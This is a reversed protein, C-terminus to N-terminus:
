LLIALASAFAATSAFGILVALALSLVQRREGAPPRVGSKSGSRASPRAQVTSPLAVEIELILSSGSARRRLVRVVLDDAM